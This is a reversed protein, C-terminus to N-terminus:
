TTSITSKEPTEQESQTVLILYDQSSMVVGTANAPPEPALGFMGLFKARDATSVGVVEDGNTWIFTGQSVLPSSRVILSGFSM